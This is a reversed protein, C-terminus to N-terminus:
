HPLRVRVRAPDGADPNSADYEAREEAVCALGDRELGAVVERLWALHEPGFDDRVRPGLAALDIAEGPPLERLAAIVRGRYYRSSGTFPEERRTTAPAEALATQIAPYARCHAQLPCFVCLPKRATCHVAGFEMLGQNWDYGEGAPVVRDALAQIERATARPTPVEPGYFLRHLVRRINTDVFGVDQEYAFCAVAGATYRGIGPLAQLEDVDRPMVGGHREVVAQAARQLNVARRNYGLGSWVRIVEATPAAALAEITPFRELFEHYKPIVREVQTQQLMVESVLVRYPDRTRRWPLDRRHARYWALLRQQLDALQQDDSPQAAPTAATTTADMPVM